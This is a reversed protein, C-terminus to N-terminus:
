LGQNPVFGRYVANSALVSVMIGGIRNWLNSLNYMYKFLFFWANPCIQRTILVHSVQSHNHVRELGEEVLDLPSLGQQELGQLPELGEVVQVKHFHDLHQYM